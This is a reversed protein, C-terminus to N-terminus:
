VPPELHTGSVADDRERMPSGEKLAKMARVASTRPSQPMYDARSLAPSNPNYARPSTTLSPPKQQPTWLVQQVVLPIILAALTIFVTSFAVMIKGQTHFSGCEKFRLVFLMGALYWGFIFISVTLVACAALLKLPPWQLFIDKVPTSDEQANIQFKLAVKRKRADELESLLSLLVYVVLPSAVIITISSTSFYVKLTYCNGTEYSVDYNQMYIGLQWVGIIFLNVWYIAFMAAHAMAWVEPMLNVAPPFGRWHSTAESQAMETGAYSDNGPSALWLGFQQKRRDETVVTQQSETVSTEDGSPLSKVPYGAVGSLDSHTRLPGLTGKSSDRVVSLRREMSAHPRILVPPPPPLVERQAISSLPADVQWYGPGVGTLALMRRDAMDAATIGAAM